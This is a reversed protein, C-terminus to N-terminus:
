HFNKLPKLFTKSTPIHKQEERERERERKKKKKHSTSNFNENKVYKILCVQQNLEKENLCFICFTFLCREPLSLHKGVFSLMKWVFALSLRLFISTVRFIMRPWPTKWNNNSDFKEKYSKKSKFLEMLHCLSSSWRILALPFYLWTIFNLYCKIIVEHVYVFHDKQLNFKFNSKLLYSRM